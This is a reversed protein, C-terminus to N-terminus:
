LPRRYLMVCIITPRLLWLTWRVKQRGQAAVIINFQYTASVPSTFRGTAADYAGGVNTVVRDFIIDTHDTVPRMNDTLGVFFAIKRNM